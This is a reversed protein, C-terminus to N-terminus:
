SKKKSFIKYLLILITIISLSIIVKEKNSSKRELKYEYNDDQYSKKELGRKILDLERWDKIDDKPFVPHNNKTTLIIDLDTIGKTKVYLSKRSKLLFYIRFHFFNKTIVIDAKMTSLGLDEYFAPKMPMAYGETLVLKIHEADIVVVKAFNETDEKYIIKGKINVPNNMEPHLKGGVTIEVESGLEKDWIALVTEPDRLPVYSVLDKANELLEKLLATNEGTAGAGVVDSTDCVAVCGLKRLLKAKRVEELMKDVSIFEPPKKNRVNWCMDALEEAIYEALNQDNDTIVSIAWGLDPDNVFPHCMFVNCCIVRPDQEIQKIRQFVARMPPLLDITTGGGMLMPLYRWAKTPNTKKTLAKVMMDGARYGMKAMDRHPNTQYGLIYDISDMKQKNIVAHLDFTVVVPINGVIEKIKEVFIAEGNFLGEVAMAGHLAIFVGDLEGAERLKTQFYELTEDFFKREVPGGSISWASMIPITEVQIDSEKNHKTVAKIFGSLELNRLFGKVEYNKPECVNALEEGYILHTREFDEKKTLVPSFSNSEQMFRGYAIRIKKSM